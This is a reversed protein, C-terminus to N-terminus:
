LHEQEHLLSASRRAGDAHSAAADRIRYLSHRAIHREVAPPVLGSIQQRQACRARITTSSVDPTPGNVLFISLPTGDDSGGIAALSAERMRPALAPLLDRISEASQGPRDVIVFHAADLFQPYDRWTAIDAFADAGAIFFLQSPSYGYGRLHELTASTYSPGPALLEIDSARLTEHDQAALAVMAFRHHVSAAPQPRHPPVHSTLLLVEDLHLTTRAAAAAAMHGVHIPDFTGGLLGVRRAVTM